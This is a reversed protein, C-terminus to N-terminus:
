VYNEWVRYDKELMLVQRCMALAKNLLEEQFTETRSYNEQRILMDAIMTNIQNNQTKLAMLEVKTDMDHMTHPTRCRRLLNTLYIFIPIFFPSINTLTTQWIAVYCVLGFKLPSCYFLIECDQPQRDAVTKRTNDTKSLCAHVGPM